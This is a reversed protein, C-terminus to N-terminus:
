EGDSEADEENHAPQNAPNNLNEEDAKILDTSDIRGRISIYKSTNKELTWLKIIVVENYVLSFFFMIFYIVIYIIIFYLKIEGNGLEKIGKICRFLFESLVRCIIFHCPTFYYLILVVGVLWFFGVIIYLIFRLLFLRDTETISKIKNIIDLGLIENDYFYEFLDLPIILLLSFFGIFFMLYYPDTYHIVFHKKVLVDYLSFIGVFIIYYSFSTILNEESKGISDIIILIIVCFSIM